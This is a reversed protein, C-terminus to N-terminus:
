MKRCLFTGPDFRQAAEFGQHFRQALTELFLIFAVFGCLLGASAKGLAEGRTWDHKM